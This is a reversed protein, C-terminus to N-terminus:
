FAVEIRLAAIWADDLSSDGGPDLIWQLDPRVILWETAQLKYVLELATEAHDTFGADPAFRLWSAAVGVVDEDREPVLGTWQVGVAAHAAAESVEDDAADYLAAVTIGQLDDAVDPQERWLTQDFTAYWTKTGHERGGDFRDFTGTHQTVGLGLRGAYAGEGCSWRLDAEGIWFLDAPGGLFTKPGRGGTRVGEQGAGDYCGFALVLADCPTVFLNVSTAPDPYLPLGATVPYSLGSHVFEGSDDLVGFESNADVKGLKLRLAGDCLKQEWWLEAIQHMTPSDINSFAQYDGAAASTQRGNLSYADAYFTAGSLGFLPEPDFTLNLDLLNHVTSREHVGGQLVRTAEVTWGGAFSFGQAALSERWSDPEVEAPSDTPPPTEQAPLAPWAILALATASGTLWGRRPRSDRSTEM